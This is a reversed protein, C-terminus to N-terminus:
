EWWSTVALFSAAFRGGGEEFEQIGSNKFEEAVDEYSPACPAGVGM